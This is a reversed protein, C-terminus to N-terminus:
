PALRMGCQTVLYTRLAAWTTRTAGPPFAIGNTVNAGTLGQAIRTLITADTAALVSGDGDFDPTCARYGYHGGEYRAVCFGDIGSEGPSICRGLTILKGDAQQALADYYGVETSVLIGTNKLGHDLKGDSHYRVICSRLLGGVSCAGAVVMKGDPQLVFGYAIHQGNTATTVVRGDFDGFSTDFTGSSNLRAVCFSSLQGGGASAGCTGALVIKGDPQIAVRRVITGELDIYSMAKGDGSFSTDLTGDTNYRVVCFRSSGADNCTGVVVIKGDSQLAIDAAYDDGSAISTIVKGDGSFSTDLDGNATYRVACFADYAPVAVSAQLLCTGAVVIKGDPQVVVGSASDDRQDFSTFVKGDGSFTTDLAGSSTYRAVCIRPKASTYCAGAVVIKGDTQLAVASAYDGYSGMATVAKGGSAFSTDLTGDENFRAICFDENSAGVCSGVAVIKRDTQLMIAAPHDYSSGMDTIVRGNGSGFSSDLDGPAAFANTSHLFVVALAFVGRQGARAALNFLSTAAFM